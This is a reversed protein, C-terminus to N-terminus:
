VLEYKIMSKEIEHGFKVTIEENSYNKIVSKNIWKSSERRVKRYIERNEYIYEAARNIEMYQEKRNEILSVKTYNNNWNVAFLKDLQIEWIKSHLLGYGPGDFEIYMINRNQHNGDCCGGTYIGCASLAKIYRAIHPELIRTPLKDACKHSHMINWPHIRNNSEIGIKGNQKSFLIKRIDAKYGDFINIIGFDDVYGIDNTNLISHLYKIDDQHSNDSLIFEGDREDILFGRKKLLEITVEICIM